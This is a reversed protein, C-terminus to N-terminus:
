CGLQDLLDPGEKVDVFPDVDRDARGEGPAGAILKYDDLEVRKAGSNLIENRGSRLPEGMM